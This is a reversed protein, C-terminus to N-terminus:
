EIRVVTLGILAALAFLRRVARRDKDKVDGSLESYSGMDPHVKSSDDRSKGLSWGQLKREAVWREHELEALLEIEPDSLVASDTRVESLECGITRLKRGFDLAQARNAEKYTSPLERWPRSSPNSSQDLAIGTTHLYDLHIFRAMLEATGYKLLEPSQVLYEPDAFVIRGEGSRAPFNIQTSGSPTLAIVLDQSHHLALKAAVDITTLSDCFQVIYIRRIPTTHVATKSGPDEAVIRRPENKTLTPMELMRLAQHSRKSLLELEEILHTDGICLLEEAVENLWLDNQIGVTEATVFELLGAAALGNVNVYERRINTKPASHIEAHQLRRALTPSDIQVRVELPTQVERRSCLSQVIDAVKVDLGDQGTAIHVLSANHAGAKILTESHLADGRIVAWRPHNFLELVNERPTPDVGVVCPDGSTKLIEAIRVGNSGLGILVVHNKRRRCRRLRFFRELRSRFVEFAAFATVLPAAVQAFALSGPITGSAFFGGGFFLSKIGALVNSLGSDAAQSILYQRVGHFGLTFSLIGLVVFFIQIVARRKLRMESM